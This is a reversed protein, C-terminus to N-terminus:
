NVSPRACVAGQDYCGASAAMPGDRRLESQVLSSFGLAFLAMLCTLISLRLVM